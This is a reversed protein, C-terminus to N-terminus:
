AAFDAMIIVALRILAHAAAHMIADYPEPAAFASGGEYTHRSVTLMIMMLLLMLSLLLMFAMLMNMMMILMKMTMIMTMMMAMMMM